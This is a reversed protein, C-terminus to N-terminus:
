ESIPVNNQTCFELAKDYQKNSILLGLAKEHKGADSLQAVKQSVNAHTM